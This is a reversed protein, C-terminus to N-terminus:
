YKSSYGQPDLFRPDPEPSHVCTEQPPGSGHLRKAQNQVRLM